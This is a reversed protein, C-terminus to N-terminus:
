HSPNIPVELHIFVIKRTKYKQLVSTLAIMKTYKEYFDSCKEVTGLLSIHQKEKSIQTPERM